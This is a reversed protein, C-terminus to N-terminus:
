SRSFHSVSPMTSVVVMSLLIFGAAAAERAGSKSYVLSNVSSTVLVMGGALYGTVAVHYTHIADSAIVVFVGIILFISYVAGWWAFTPFPDQKDDAQIQAVICSIFTIVWALQRRTLTHLSLACSACQSLIWIM